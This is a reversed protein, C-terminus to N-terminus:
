VHGSHRVPALAAGPGVALGSKPALISSLGYVPFGTNTRIQRATTSRLELCAATNVPPRLCRSALWNQVFPRMM